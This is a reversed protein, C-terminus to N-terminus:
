ELWRGKVTISQFPLFSLSFLFYLDYGVALLIPSDHGRSQSIRALITADRRMTESDRSEMSRLNVRPCYVFTVAHPHWETM